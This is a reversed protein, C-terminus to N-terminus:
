WNEHRAGGRSLKTGRATMKIDGSDLVSGPAASAVSLAQQSCQPSFPPLSPSLSQTFGRTSAPLRRPAEQCLRRRAPPPPAALTRPGPSSCSSCPGSGPSNVRCSPLQAWVRTVRTQITSGGRRGERSLGVEPTEQPGQQTKDGLGRVGAARPSCKREFPSGQHSLHHHIRRYHLLGLTSGQNPFIGQLLSHCSM